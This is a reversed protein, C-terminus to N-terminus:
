RDDTAHRRVQSNVTSVQLLDLVNDDCARGGSLYRKIVKCFIMKQKNWQGSSNRQDGLM